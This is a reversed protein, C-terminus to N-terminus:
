FLSGQLIDIKVNDPKKLANEIAKGTVGFKIGLEFIAEPSSYGRATTLVDFEARILDQNRSWLVEKCNPVMLRSGGCWQVIRRAAPEGVIECLHAYRQAGRATGGGIRAPVPWQQGGWAAIIRAAGELGSIRILDVATRPFLPLQSIERLLEPTMEAVM